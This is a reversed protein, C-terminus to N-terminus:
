HNVKRRSDYRDWRLRDREREMELQRQAYDSGYDMYQWTHRARAETVEEYFDYKDYHADWEDSDDESTRPYVESLRLSEYIDSRLGSMWRNAPNHTSRVARLHPEPLDEGQVEWEKNFNKTGTHRYRVVAVGLGPRVEGFGAKDTSLFSEVESPSDDVLLITRAAEGIFQAPASDAPIGPNTVPDHKLLEELFKGKAVSSLFITSIPMENGNEYETRLLELTKRLQFDPKGYTLFGQNVAYPEGRSEEGIKVSTGIVDQYKEPRIMADFVTNYIGDERDAGPAEDKTEVGDATFYFPLSDPTTTPRNNISQGIEDELSAVLSERDAEPTNGIMETLKALVSIHTDIHYTERGNEDWRALKDTIDLLSKANAPSLAIKSNTLYTEYHQQRVTKAESYGLMTDDLDYLVWDGFKSPPRKGIKIMYGAEGLSVLEVDEGIVDTYEALMGRLKEGELSTEQGSEAVVDLQVGPEEVVSPLLVDRHSGESVGDGPMALQEGAIDAPDQPLEPLEEHPM